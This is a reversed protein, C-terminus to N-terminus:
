PRLSAIACLAQCMQDLQQDLDQYLDSRKNSWENYCDYLMGATGAAGVAAGAPGAVCGLITCFLGIGGRRILCWHYEDDADALDQQAQVCKQQAFDVYQEQLDAPLEFNHGHAWCACPAVACIPPGGQQVYETPARGWVVLLREQSGTDNTYSLATARISATGSPGIITADVIWAQASRSVFLDFQAQTLEGESLAANLDLPISWSPLLSFQAGVHNQGVNWDLPNFPGWLALPPTFLQYVTGAGFVDHWISRIEAIWDDVCIADGGDPPFAMSQCLEGGRELQRAQIPAAVVGVLLPAAAAVLSSFYGRHM